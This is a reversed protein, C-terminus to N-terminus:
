SARLLREVTQQVELGERFTALPHPKGALMAALSDLQASYSRQRDTGPGFNVAEWAGGRRQRALSYWNHLRLAGTEGYAIWSNEDVASTTGVGGILRVPVEGAYLEASLATEATKGDEPYAVRAREIRLPGFARRTLFLFHSVVERVFGGERRLALWSSAAAQWERPWRAFDTKIEVREVRGIEGKELTELILRAAPASSFPFNIAAKRHEREIRQTMAEAEALDVSLPKECFVTKGRAFALAAHGLHSAPPSAIYVCDLAADAVLEEASAARHISPHGSAIRALAAPSPDWVAAVRHGGHATMNELMRGGMVGLGIIGIRYAMGGGLRGRAPTAPLPKPTAM